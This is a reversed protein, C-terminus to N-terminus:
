AIYDKIVFFIKTEAAYRKVREEDQKEQFNFDIENCILDM